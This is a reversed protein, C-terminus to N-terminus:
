QFNNRIRYKKNRSKSKKDSYFFIIDVLIIIDDVIYGCRKSICINIMIVNAAAVNM